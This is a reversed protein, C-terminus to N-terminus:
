VFLVNIPAYMGNDVCQKLLLKTEYCIETYYICYSGYEMEINNARKPIDQNDVINPNEILYDEKYSLQDLKSDHHEIDNINDLVSLNNYNLKNAMNEKENNEIPFKYSVDLNCNGVIPLEQSSHFCPSALKINKKELLLRIERIEDKM